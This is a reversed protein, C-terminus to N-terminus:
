VKFKCDVCKVIMRKQKNNFKYVLMGGCQPCM